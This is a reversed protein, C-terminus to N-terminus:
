EEDDDTVYGLARMQNMLDHQNARVTKPDETRLSPDYAPTAENWLNIKAMLAEERSPDSGYLNNLEGPDTTLDYLEHGGDSYRILKYGEEVVAHGMKLWPEVAVDPHVRQVTKIERELPVAMYSVPTRRPDRLSHSPLDPGDLGALDTLTAFLDLTTVPAEVRRAEMAAPYRIILPVHLLTEYLAFRHNFLHHDGLNEGHDSTLVVITDDLVGRADLAAFLDATANDLDVLTADYVGNIAELERATYDHKGFNYFHLNIHGADTALGLEILEPDDIVQERAEMSPIRPTHAEMLNLFAFFPADSPREDLWKVFGKSILPAAEKYVARGWEANKAGHTPAAWGPTLENSRDRAILKQQTAARAMPKVRGKFTNWQTEFGQVLNTDTSLLTNAAFAFTDYGREGFWESMTVHQDDLWLWREDAGTSEPPLGTFLSAHAPLTWIGASRAEEYITAEQAWEAIRPTTPKDYGYVSMRDARVTDWVVVLVNPPRATPAPEPVPPPEPPAFRRGVGIGLVLGLATIGLGLGIALERRM